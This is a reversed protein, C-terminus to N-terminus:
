VNHTAKLLNANEYAAIRQQQLQLHQDINDLTVYHGFDKPLVKENNNFIRNVILEALIDRYHSCEYYYHDNLSISHYGSFDWFSTIKSIERLYQYYSQLHFTDMMHQNHPATYVILNINNADALAKFQKFAEINAFLKTGASGRTVKNHFSPQEKIYKEPNQLIKDELYDVHWRGSQALDYRLYNRHGGFYNVKIKEIIRKVPLITLYSLYFATMSSNTVHPHHKANYNGEPAKFGYLDSIDIQLYIHKIPYKNKIFYQLLLLNDYQTCGAITFNYFHSDTLHKELLYPSTTGSRSSGMIYANYQDHHKDIHCIKNFRENMEYDRSLIHSHFVSFPDIIFNLASLALLPITMFYIVINIWRRYTM